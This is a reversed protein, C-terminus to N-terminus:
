RMGYIAIMDMDMVPPAPSPAEPVLTLQNAM